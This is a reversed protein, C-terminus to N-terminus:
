NKIESFENNNELRGLNNKEEAYFGTAIFTNPSKGEYGLLTIEQNPKLDTLRMILDYSPQFFFFVKQSGDDCTIKGLYYDHDNKDKRLSLEQLLTGSLKPSNM